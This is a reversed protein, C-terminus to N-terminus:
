GGEGEGSARKNALREILERAFERGANTEVFYRVGGLEIEIPRIFDRGHDHTPIESILYRVRGAKYPIDKATLTGQEFLATIAQRFFSPVDDATITQDGIQVNLPISEREGAADVDTTVQTTWGLQRCLQDAASIAQEYTYATNLYYGGREVMSDFRRGNRHYPEDSLLYRVRGTSVPVVDALNAEHQILLGLLAALFRRVTPGSVTIPQDHGPPYVDISLTTGPEPGDTDSDDDDHEAVDVDDAEEEETRPQEIDPSSADISFHALFRIVEALAQARALNGEFVYSAIPMPLTFPTGNQHYPEHNVLFRTRGMLWPIAPKPDVGREDLWAMTQELLERVNAGRLEHEGIRLRMARDDTDALTHTGPQQQDFLEAYRALEAAEVPVADDALLEACLQVIQWLPAPYTRQRRGSPLEGLLALLRARHTPDQAKYHNSSLLSVRGEEDLEGLVAGLDAENLETETELQGFSMIVNNYIQEFVYEKRRELLEPLSAEVRERLGIWREGCLEGLRSLCAARADPDDNSDLNIADQIAQEVRKVENPPLALDKIKPNLLTERQNRPILGFDLYALLYHEAYRRGLLESSHLTKPFKAYRVLADLERPQATRRAVFHAGKDPKFHLDLRLLSTGLPARGDALDIRHIPSTRPNGGAPAQVEVIEYNTLLARMPQWTLLEDVAPALYECVLAFMRPDNPFWSEDDLHAYGKNRIPLLAKCLAVLSCKSVSATAQLHEELYNPLHSPPIKYQECAKRIATFARTMRNCAAPLRQEAMVERLEPVTTSLDVGSAAFIEIGTVKDGLSLPLSVERLRKETKAEAADAPQAVYVSNALDALYGTLVDFLSCYNGLAEKASTSEVINRLPTILRLPFDHYVEAVIPLSTISTMTTVQDRPRRDVRHLQPEKGSGTGTTLVYNDGARAARIGEIQHRYLQLSRRGQDTDTAFIDSCAPHLLDDAILQDMSEGPEFAPNLQILPDPWLEPLRTNVLEAVQGDRIEIFSRMYRAYDHTVQDRLRFVDM